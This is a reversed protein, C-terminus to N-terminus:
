LEMRYQMCSGTGAQSCIARQPQTQPSQILAGSKIGTYPQPATGHGQTDFTVTFETALNWKAYLTLNGTRGKEIQTISQTFAADLYWGNFTYGERTPAKLVITATDATYTAPNDAHNTGGNLRHLHHHLNRSPRYEEPM